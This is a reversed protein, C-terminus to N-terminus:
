EESKPSAATLLTAFGLLLGQECRFWLAWGWTTLPSHQPGCAPSITQRGAAEAWSAGRGRAPAGHARRPKKGLYTTDVQRSGTSPVRGHAQCHTLKSKTRPGIAALKHAAPPAICSAWDWSMDGWNQAAKPQVNAKVWLNRQPVERHCISDEFPPSM